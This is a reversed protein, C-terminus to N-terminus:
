DETLLALFPQLAEADRVLVDVFGADRCASGAVYPYKVKLALEFNAQTTAPLMCSLTSLWASVPRVNAQPQDSLIANLDFTLKGDSTPRRRAYFHVQELYVGLSPEWFGQPLPRQPGIREAVERFVRLLEDSGRKRMRRWYGTKANNPLTLQIGCGEPEVFVTIHPHETFVENPAAFRFGVVDWPGTIPKRAIERSIPLADSAELRPRLERMLARLHSRASLEVFEHNSDFPIGLFKTLPEVAKGKCILQDEVIHMYDLFDRAYDRDRYGHIFEYVEFWAVPSAHVLPPLLGFAEPGARTPTITLLHLLPFDLKQATSAHNKLQDARLDATVKCECFVAWRPEDGDSKGYVWFDPIGYGEAEQEESREEPEGEQEPFRQCSFCFKHTAPVSLGPVFRAIFRRALTEDRVLVQVLAHTLRNEPQDYQDFINRIQHM